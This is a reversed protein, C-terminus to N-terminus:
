IVQLKVPQEKSTYMMGALLIFVFGLVSKTNMHLCWRDLFHFASPNVDRLRNYRLNTIKGAQLKFIGGSLAGIRSQKVLSLKQM